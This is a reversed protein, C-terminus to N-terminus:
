PVRLLIVQKSWCANDWSSKLTETGNMDTTPPRPKWRDSNLEGQNSREAKTHCFFPSCSVKLYCAARLNPILSLFCLSIFVQNLYVITMQSFFIHLLMFCTEEETCRSCHDASFTDVIVEDGATMATLYFRVFHSIGLVWPFPQM